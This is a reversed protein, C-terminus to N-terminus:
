LITKRSCTPAATRVGPPWDSFKQIYGRIYVNSIFKKQLEVFCQNILTFTINDSQKVLYWTM